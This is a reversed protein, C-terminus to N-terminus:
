IQIGLHKVIFFLCEDYQGERPENDYISLKTGDLVVYKREWGQQGRKGNRRLFMTTHISHKTHKIIVTRFKNNFFKNKGQSSWGDRWVFMDQQKKSKYHLLTPRKEAYLRRSTLLMSLRCVAPPQCVHHANLTVCPTASQLLVSFHFFYFYIVRSM